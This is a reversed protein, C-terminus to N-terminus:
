TRATGTIQQRMKLDRAESLKTQRVRVDTASAADTELQRIQEAITKQDAGGFEGGAKGPLAQSGALYPKAALLAAVAEKAGSVGHNKDVLITDDSALLAVIVDPDVAKAATAATVIALKKYADNVSAADTKRGNREKELEDKIRQIETKETEKATDAATKLAKLEEYDAPVARKLRAELIADLETQTFTREPKGAAVGTATGADAPTGTSGNAPPTTAEPM